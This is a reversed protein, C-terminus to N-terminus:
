FKDKGVGFCSFMLNGESTVRLNIIDGDRITRHVNTKKVFSSSVSKSRVDVIKVRKAFWLVTPDLLYNNYIQPLIVKELVQFDVDRPLVLPIRKNRRTEIWVLNGEKVCGFQALSLASKLIDLDASEREEWERFVRINGKWEFMKNEIERFLSFAYIEQVSLTNTDKEPAIGSDSLCLM